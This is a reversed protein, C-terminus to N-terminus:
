NRYRGNKWKIHLTGLDDVSTITGEEGTALDNYFDYMKILKVKTRIPYRQENYELDDLM